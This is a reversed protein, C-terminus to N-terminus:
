YESCSTRNNGRKNIFDEISNVNCACGGSTSYASPCCSHSFKTESFINMSRDLIEGPMISSKSDDNVVQVRKNIYSNKVGDGINYNIDSGISKFTELFSFRACSCFVFTGLLSGVLLSLLLVIPNCRIGFIDTEFKFMKIGPVKM